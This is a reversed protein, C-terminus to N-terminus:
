GTPPTPTSHPREFAPPEGASQDTFVPAANLETGEPASTRDTEDGPRSGPQESESASRWRTSARLQMDAPHVRLGGPAAVPESYNAELADDPAFPGPEAERGPRSSESGLALEPMIRVSPSAAPSGAVSSTGYGTGAPETRGRRAPRQGLRRLRAHRLLALLLVFGALVLAFPIVAGAISAAHRPIHTGAAHAVGAAALGALLVLFCLWSYVRSVFGAGRLALVACGALFLAADFVFPYIRALQASVEADGALVHVSTYSLVCAGATLATVLVAITVVALTRLAGRSERGPDGQWQGSAVSDQPPALGASRHDSRRAV